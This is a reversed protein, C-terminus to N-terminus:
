SPRAFITAFINSLNIFIVLACHRCRSIIAKDTTCKKQVIAFTNSRIFELLCFSLLFVVPYMRFPFNDTDIFEPMVNQIIWSTIVLGFMKINWVIYNSVLVPLDCFLEQLGFLLLKM